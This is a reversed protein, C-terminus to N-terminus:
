QHVLFYADRAGGYRPSDVLHLPPAVLHTGLPHEVLHDGEAQWRYLRAGLTEQGFVGDLSRAHQPLMTQVQHSPEDRDHQMTHLRAFLAKSRNFPLGLEESGGSRIDQDQRGVNFPLAVPLVDLEVIGSPLLQELAEGQRLLDPGTVAEGNRHVRVKPGRDLARVVHPAKQFAALRAEAEVGAVEHDPPIVWHLDGLKGGFSDADHM